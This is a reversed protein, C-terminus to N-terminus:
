FLRWDEQSTLAHHPEALIQRPSATSRGYVPSLAPPPPVSPGSGPGTLVGQLIPLSIRPTPYERVIQGDLKTGMETRHAASQKFFFRTGSARCLARVDRAWQHDMPRFGPGSEGGVILWDIGRLDIHGLPGLAPEYSIFRVTAPIRRLVEARGIYDNSEISVGLWVNAWGAGWDTPLHQVIREARKTLLQWDLWPTRRIM